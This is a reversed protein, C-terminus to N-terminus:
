GAAARINRDVRHDVLDHNMGSLVFDLPITRRRRCQLLDLLIENLGVEIFGSGSSCNWGAGVAGHIVDTSLASAATFRLPM